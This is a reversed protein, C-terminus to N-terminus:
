WLQLIGVPVRIGSRRKNHTLLSRLVPGNPRLTEWYIKYNPERHFGMYFLIGFLVRIEFGIAPWWYQSNTPSRTTPANHALAYLNTNEALMNYIEPSIFLDLLALPDGVDINSPIDLKPDRHDGIKFPEFQVDKPLKAEEMVGQFGLQTLRAIEEAKAKKKAKIDLEEVQSCLEEIPDSVPTNAASKTTPKTSPPPKKTSKTASKVPKAKPAISPESPVLSQAYQEDFPVIPKKSRNSRREIPEAMIIINFLRLKIFEDLKHTGLFALASLSLM